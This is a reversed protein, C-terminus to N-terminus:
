IEEMRAAVTLQAPECDRDRNWLGMCGFLFVAPSREPAYAYRAGGRQDGGRHLAMKVNWPKSRRGIGSERITVFQKVAVAGNLHNAHAQPPHDKGNDHAHQYDSAGRM